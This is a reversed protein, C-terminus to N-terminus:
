FGYDVSKDHKGFAANRKEIFAAIGERAEAGLCMDALVNSTHDAMGHFSHNCRTEAILTKCTGQALPAGELLDALVDNLREAISISPAVESVLGFDLADDGTFQRGSLMLERMKGAKMRQAVFPLIIAPMLGMRVENFSMVAFPDALIYDSAAMLGIADGFAYGHVVSVVPKPISNLQCLMSALARSERLVELEFGKKGSNALFALDCGSCFGDGRGRIVLVRIQPTNIVHEIERIFEAVMASSLANRSSPENLWLTYVSDKLEKELIVDM